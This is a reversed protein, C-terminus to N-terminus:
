KLPCLEVRLKWFVEKRGSGISTYAECEESYHDGPQSEVTVQGGDYIRSEEIWFGGPVGLESIASASTRVTAQPDRRPAGNEDGAELASWKQRKETGGAFCVKCKNKPRPHERGSPKITPVWDPSQGVVEKSLGRRAGRWSVV